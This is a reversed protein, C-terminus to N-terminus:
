VHHSHSAELWSICRSTVQAQTTPLKSKVQLMYNATEAKQSGLSAPWHAEWPGLLRHAAGHSANVSYSTCRIILLPARPGGRGGRTHVHAYM